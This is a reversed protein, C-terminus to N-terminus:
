KEPGTGYRSELTIQMKQDVPDETYHPIGSRSEKKDERPEEVAPYTRSVINRSSLISRNDKSNHDYLTSVLGIIINATFSFFFLFINITIKRKRVSTLKWHKSTHQYLVVHSEIPLMGGRSIWKQRHYEIQRSNIRQNSFVYLRM